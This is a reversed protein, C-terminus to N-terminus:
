KRHAKFEKEYTAWPTNKYADKALYSAIAHMDVAGQYGPIMTLIQLNPEFFVTSPYSLKGNLMKAALEHVGRRGANPLFNYTIGGVTVPAKGEANFKVAHYNENIYAAVEPNAYTTKDMRKCWGCWDTYIDVMIKKGDEAALAAAEEISVWNVEAAPAPAPASTSVRFGTGLLAISFLSILLVPLLNTRLM